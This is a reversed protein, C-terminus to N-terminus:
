PIVAQTEAAHHPVLDAAHRIVRGVHWGGAPGRHQQQCPHGHRHQLLLCSKEPPCCLLPCPAHNPAPQVSDKRGGLSLQEAPEEAPGCAGVATCTAASRRRVHAAASLTATGASVPVSAACNIRAEIHPVAASSQPLPGPIVPPGRAERFSVCYRSWHHGGYGSRHRRAHVSAGAM